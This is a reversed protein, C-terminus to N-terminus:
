SKPKLLKQIAVREMWPAVLTMSLSKQAAALLNSRMSNALVAVPAQLLQSAIM